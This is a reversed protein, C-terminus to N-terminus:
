HLSSENKREETIAMSAIIADYKRAMLGPIIGDWDQQVLKCEKKMEKCLAKAIEIDFGVLQGEKTLSSFPPYAGEVGIKLPKAALQFSAIMMLLTLIRNM